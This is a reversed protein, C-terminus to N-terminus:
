PSLDGQGFTFGYRQFAARSEAAGSLFRCFKLASTPVSTNSLVGIGIGNNSGDADDLEAAIVLLDEGAANNIQTVTTDWIIAADLSGTTLAQALIMVNEADLSKRAELQELLRDRNALNRAMKGVAARSSAVGFKVSKRALLSNMSDFTLSSGSRVAIVPQQTALTFREAIVGQQHATALLLDDASLYLDAGNKMDTEVETAIQGALEGSGGTRVLQVNANYKRNYVEIVDAVPRAISAACYIRVLDVQAENRAADPRIMLAAWILLGMVLVSGILALLLASVSGARDSRRQPCLIATQKGM